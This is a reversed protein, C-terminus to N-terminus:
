KSKPSKELGIRTLLEKFLTSVKIFVPNGSKQTQFNTSLVNKGRILHVSLTCLLSEQNGM